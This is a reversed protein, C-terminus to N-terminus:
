STLRMDWDWEAIGSNEGKKDTEGYDSVFGAKM